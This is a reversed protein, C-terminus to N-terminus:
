GGEKGRGGRGEGRKLVDGPDLGLVQLDSQLLKRAGDVGAPLPPGQGEGRGQDILLPSGGGTGKAEGLPSVGGGELRNGELIPHQLQTHLIQLSGDRGGAPLDGHNGLNAGGEEREEEERM